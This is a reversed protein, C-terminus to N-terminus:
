RKGRTCLLATVMALVGGCLKALLMPTLATPDVSLVYGVHGALASAACVFFASAVVKGRDDMDKLMALPPLVSVCSIMIGTLSIENIGLRKGLWRLPRKMARQLLEAAPLSGLLAVGCGSVVQMADEIPALGPILTVGTLYKVAGGILGITCLASILKAFVSFGKVAGNPAFKLAASLGLSLGIVPLSQLLTTKLTLGCLLGGVILAAPLTCLGILTGRFFASRDESRIMGTGTPIIFSVTCGLTAGVIVGAYRGVDASQALAAAMQYGGMDVALVGGLMAPDFGAARWLPALTCELASSLLPAVCLIGAVSLATPGLLRFGEEFKEGLKLRNGLLRDMGGIIAGLALLWQIAKEM